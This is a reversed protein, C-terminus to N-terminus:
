SVNFKRLLAAAGRRSRETLDPDTQWHVLIGLILARRHRDTSKVLEAKFRSLVDMKDIEDTM